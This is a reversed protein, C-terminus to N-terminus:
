IKSSMVSEMWPYVSGNAMPYGMHLAGSFFRAEKPTGYEFLMMSDEIPMLGDLTGNILLLRTSPKEIIGTELLSFKKQVGAKYEEVSKYGHKMAM